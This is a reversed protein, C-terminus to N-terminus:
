HPTPDPWTKRHEEVRAKVEPDDGVRASLPVLEFSVTNSKPAGDSRDGLEALEGEALQLQARAAALQRRYVEVPARPRKRGAPLDAGPQERSDAKALLKEYSEIRRLAHAKKDELRKRADGEKLRAGPGAPDGLGVKAFGLHKGKTGGSLALAGGRPAPQESIRSLNGGVFIQVEPLAEGVTSEERESLQSLVIFMEAGEGKAAEIAERLADIPPEIELGDAKPAVARKPGILGFVALRVRQDEARTVEILAYRSFVPQRSEADILNTAVFPYRAREALAELASRGLALDRDGISQADVGEANFRDVIVEATARANSLRDGQMRPLDSFADGADLIM